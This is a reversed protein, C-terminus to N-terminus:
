LKVGRKREPAVSAPLRQTQTRHSKAQLYDNLDKYERYCDSQDVVESDPCLRIVDATAKRGTEDNDFFTHVTRHRQLFPIAKLLNVVSNLVAADIRLPEPKKLTLYSLFDMFGEFAICTDAHNDITTIHKPSSGGKFYESRLEWGGANNRFGIAFYERNGVAYRVERCFASATEPDIGRSQLYGVLAPHCLPADTLIRLAPVPPAVPVPIVSAIPKIEDSGLSRIAQSKDCNELGMVLDIISGGKGTGFDHWLNLVYDVKFSPTHEARLPSLYFGCRANERAPRIGRRSLYDRISLRKLQQIDDM